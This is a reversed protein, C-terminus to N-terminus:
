DDSSLPIYKEAPDSSEKGEYYYPVLTGNDKGSESDLIQESSEDWKFLNRVNELGKEFYEYIRPILNKSRTDLSRPTAIFNDKKDEVKTENQLNRKESLRKRKEGRTINNKSRYFIDLPSFLSMKAYQEAQKLLNALHQPLLQVTVVGDSKDTKPVYNYMRQRLGKSRTRNLMKNQLTTVASGSIKAVSPPGNTQYQKPERSTEWLQKGGLPPPFLEVSPIWADDSANDANLNIGRPKILSQKSNTNKPTLVPEVIENKRVQISDTVNSLKPVNRDTVNQVVSYAPYGDVTKDSERKTDNKTEPLFFPDITTAEEKPLNCEGPYLKLPVSVGSELILDKKCVSVTKGFSDTVKIRDISWKKLGSTIWGSYATYMIEVANPTQLAPHPVIIKSLTAGVGLEDDDKKTLVFTENINNEGTLILQIKGYSVVPLKSPSSELSVM